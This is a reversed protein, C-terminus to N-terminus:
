YVTWFFDELIKDWKDPLGYKDKITHLQKATTVLQNKSIAQLIEHKITPELSEANERFWVLYEDVTM